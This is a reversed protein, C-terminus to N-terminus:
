KPQVGFMIMGKAIIENNVKAVASVIGAKDMLKEKTVELILQSGPLVPKLFKVDVNGLYYVPHKAAIEPKFVAYLIISSQAMAEIIIVGPMVPNGPFHGKFFYDNISVNKLCSVRGEEENIEIVSDIFLFPYRQPLIEKIKNIDWISNL